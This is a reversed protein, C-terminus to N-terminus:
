VLDFWTELTEHKAMLYLRWCVRTMEILADCTPYLGKAASSRMRFVLWRGSRSGCLLLSFFTALSIRTTRVLAASESESPV